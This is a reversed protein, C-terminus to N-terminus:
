YGVATPKATLFEQENQRLVVPTLYLWRNIADSCAESRLARVKKASRRCHGCTEWLLSRYPEAEGFKMGLRHRLRNLRSYLGFDSQIGRWHHRTPDVVNSCCAALGDNVVYHEALTM